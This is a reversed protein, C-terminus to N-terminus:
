VPWRQRSPVPRNRRPLRIKPQLFPSRPSYISDFFPLSHEEHGLFLAKLADLDSFTLLILCKLCKKIYLAQKDYIRSM